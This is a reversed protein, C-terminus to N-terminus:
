GKPLTITFTTEQGLITRIEVLGGHTEIAVKVADMGVGRGSINTVLSVMSFGPLFILNLKEQETMNQADEHQILGKDLARKYIEEYDMGRGNDKVEIVTFDDQDFLSLTIIGQGKPILKREDDNELGHDMSNNILHMLPFNIKEILNHSLPIDPTSIDFLCSQKNNEETYRAFMKKYHRCFHEFSVSQLLELTHIISPMDSLTGDKLSTILHEYEDRNVNVLHEKGQELMDKIKKIAQYEDIFQKIFASLETQSISEDFKNAKINELLSEVDHAIKSVEIFGLSGANGKLTHLLRYSENIELPSCDDLNTKKLDKISQLFYDLFMELTEMDNDIVGVLHEVMLLHEKKINALEKEIQRTATIDKSIVMLKKLKNNEIIPRYKVQIYEDGEELHNVIELVPSLEVYKQWHKLKEPQCLLNLWRKFVENKQPSLNFIEQLSKHQFGSTNYLDLAKTSHESNVTLDPNITFIGEEINNLIEKIEKTLNDNDPLKIVPTTIQKNLHRTGFYALLLIILATLGLNRYSKTQVYQAQKENNVKRHLNRDKQNELDVKVRKNVQTLTKEITELSLIYRLFGVPKGNDIFEKFQGPTGDFIPVSCELARINKVKDNSNPLEYSIFELHIKGLKIIDAVRSDEVEISVDSYHSHWQKNALDYLSGQALGQPYKRSWFGLSTITKKEIQFFSLNLIGEDIYFINNLAKKINNMDRNIFFPQLLDRSQLLSLRGRHRASQELINQLQITNKKYIDSITQDMVNASQNAIHLRTKDLELSSDIFIISVLTFALLLILM